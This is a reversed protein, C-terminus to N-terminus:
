FCKWAEHLWICISLCMFGALFYIHVEKWVLGGLVGLSHASYGSINHFWPYMILVKM